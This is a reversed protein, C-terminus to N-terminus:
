GRQESAIESRLKELDQLEERRKNEVDALARDRHRTLLKAMADRGSETTQENMVQKALERMDDEVKKKNADHKANIRDKHRDVAANMAHASGTSGGGGEGFRGHDDRPHQSEDWGAKVITQGHSKLGALADEIMSM